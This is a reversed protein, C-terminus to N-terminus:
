MGRLADLTVVMTASGTMPLVCSVAEIIQRRTAGAALAIAMHDRAVDSLGRACLASIAILLRATSPLVRGDGDDYWCHLVFSRFREALESDIPTLEDWARLLGAAEADRPVTSALDMEAFPVVQTPPGGPPLEGTAYDPDNATRIARCVGGITSWGEVPAIAEAAEIIVSDTVGMRYLRRVHNPAFGHDRRAVLQVTAILERFPPSLVQDDLTQGEYHHVYGACRHMLELTRPRAFAILEFEGFIDGRERILQQVLAEGAQLKDTM